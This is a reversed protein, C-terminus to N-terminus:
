INFLAEECKVKDKNWSWTNKEKASLDSIWVHFYKQKDTWNEYYKLNIVDHVLINILYTFEHRSLSITDSIWHETNPM